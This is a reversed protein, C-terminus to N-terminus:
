NSIFYPEGVAIVSLEGGVSARFPHARWFCFLHLPVSGFVEYDKESMKVVGISCYENQCEYDHRSCAILEEGCKPCNM